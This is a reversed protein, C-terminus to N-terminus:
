GGFPRDPDFVELVFVSQSEENDGGDTHKGTVVVDFAGSIPQGAVAAAANAGKLLFTPSKGIKETEGDPSEQGGSSKQNDTTKTRIEFYALMADGELVKVCYVPREDAEDNIRGVSGIKLDASTFAALRVIREPSYKRRVDALESKLSRIQNYYEEVKKAAGTGTLRRMSAQTDRIQKEISAIKQAKSPVPHAKDYDARSQAVAASVEDATPRQSDDAAPRSKVVPDALSASVLLGAVVLTRGYLM